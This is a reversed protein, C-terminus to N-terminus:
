KRIEMETWNTGDGAELLHAPVLCGPEGPRPGWDASGWMSKRRGFGLRKAWIDDGAPTTLDGAGDTWPKANLWRAAHRIYQPEKGEVERSYLKLAQLITELPTQKRAKIFAKIADQKDVKRPYVPWFANDFETQIEEDVM